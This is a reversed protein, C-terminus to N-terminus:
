DLHAADHAEKGQTYVYWDNLIGLLNAPARLEGKTGSYGPDQDGNEVKWACQEALKRASELLMENGTLLYGLLLDRGNFHGAGPAISSRQRIDDGSTGHEAHQHPSNDMWPLPGPTDSHMMGVTAHHVAHTEAITFAKDFLDTPILSHTVGALRLAQLAIGMPIEYENNVPHGGDWDAVIDGFDRPNKWNDPVRDGHSLRYIGEIAAICQLDYARQLDANTM